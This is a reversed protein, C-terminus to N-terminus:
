FTKLEKYININVCFAMTIILQICIIQILFYIKLLAKGLQNKKERFIYNTLTTVQFLTIFVKGNRESFEVIKPIKNIYSIPCPETM